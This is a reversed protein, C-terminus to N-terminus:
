REPKRSNDALIMLLIMKEVLLNVRYDVSIGKSNGLDSLIM